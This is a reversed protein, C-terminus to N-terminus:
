DGSSLQALETLVAEHRCTVLRCRYKKRALPKIHSPELGTEEMEVGCSESRQKATQVRLVCSMTTLVPPGLQETLQDNSLTAADPTVHM